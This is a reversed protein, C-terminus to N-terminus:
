PDISSTSCLPEYKAKGSRASYSRRSSATVGCTGHPEHSLTPSQPTVHRVPDIHHQIDRLPPLGSPLEKPFVDAFEQILAAVRPPTIQMSDECEISLLLIVYPATRLECEFEPRSLLMISSNNGTSPHRPPASHLAIKANEFIFSYTNLRGDHIVVRDFKWPRGLLLHCADMPVVDCWVSDM